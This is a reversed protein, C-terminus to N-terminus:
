KTGKNLARLYEAFQEIRPDIALPDGILKKVLSDAAMRDHMNKDYNEAEERSLFKGFHGGTRRYEYIAEQPSHAVGDYFSPILVHKGGSEILMTRMSSFSGDPNLVSEREYPNLTGNENAANDLISKYTLAM